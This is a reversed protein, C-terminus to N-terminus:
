DKFKSIIKLFWTKNNIIKYENLKNKVTIKRFRKYQAKILFRTFLISNLFSDKVEKGILNNRKIYKHFSELFYELTHFEKMEYYARMMLSRSTINDFVDNFEVDVLLDILETFNKKVNEIQAKALLVNSKRNKPHLLDSKSQIFNEAWDLKGLTSSVVIANKYDYSSLYGSHTFLNEKFGFDYLEFLEFDFKKADNKRKSICYNILNKLIFVKDINSISIYYEFYLNKIELYTEISCDFFHISIKKYLLISKSTTFIKNSEPMKQMEKLLFVNYKKGSHLARVNAECGFYLKAHFYFSDLNFLTDNFVKVQESKVNHKENLELLQFQHFHHYFDQGTMGDLRKLEKDILQFAREHMQRKFLTKIFLITKEHSNEVLAQQLIFDDFLKKIIYLPNKLKSSILEDAKGNLQKLDTKLEPFVYSFCHTKTFKREEFTPHNKKIFDYLRAVTEKKNHVPNRVFKGFQKFEGDPLAILQAIVKNKKM